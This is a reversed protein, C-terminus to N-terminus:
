GILAAKRHLLNAYRVAIRQLSGARLITSRSTSARPSRPVFEAHQDQQTLVLQEPLWARVQCEAMAKTVSGVGLARHHAEVLARGLEDGLDARRDWGGWALELAVVALIAVVARDLHGVLPGRAVEGVAHAVEDIHVIGLGLQDPDHEVVQRSM